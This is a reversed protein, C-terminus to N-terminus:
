GWPVPEVEGQWRQLHTSDAVKGEYGLLSLMALEVYRLGLRWAEVYIGTDTAFDSDPHVIENRAEIFARPGDSWCERENSM